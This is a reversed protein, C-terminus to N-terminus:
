ESMWGLVLKIHERSSRELDVTEGDDIGFDRMARRFVGAAVHAAYFFAVAASRDEHHNLKVMASFYLAGVLCAPLRMMFDDFSRPQAIHALLGHPNQIDIGDRGRLLDALKQLVPEAASYNGNNVLHKLLRYTLGVELPSKPEV